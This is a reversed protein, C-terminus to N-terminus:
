KPPNKEELTPPTPTVQPPLNSFFPPLNNKRKLDACSKSNVKEAHSVSLFNEMFSMQLTNIAIRSFQCM